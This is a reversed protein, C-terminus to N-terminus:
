VGGGRAGGPVGGSARTDRGVLIQPRRDGHETLAMVAARGLRFALEGTLDRNAIGRIGDTGFLRGVARYRVTRPRNTRYPDALDAQTWRRLYLRSHCSRSGEQTRAKRPDREPLVTSSFAEGLQRAEAEDAPHLPLLHRVAPPDLPRAEPTGVPPRMMAGANRSGWTQM